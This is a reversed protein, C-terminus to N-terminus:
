KKNKISLYCISEVIAIDLADEFSDYSNYDEAFSFPYEESNDIADWIYRKGMVDYIPIIHLNIKNKALFMIFGAHTKPYEDNFEIKNLVNILHEDNFNIMNFEHKIIIYMM